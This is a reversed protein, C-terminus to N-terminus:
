KVAMKWLKKPRALGKRLLALNWIGWELFYVDNIWM